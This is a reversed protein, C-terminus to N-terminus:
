CVALPQHVTGHLLAPPAALQAAAPADWHCDAGREATHEQGAGPQVLSQKRWRHSIYAAAQQHAAVTWGEIRSHQSAGGALRSVHIIIAKRGSSVDVEQASTIYLDRLDSKLEANTAELDFLAQLSCASAATLRCFCSCSGKCHQREAQKSLKNAAPGMACRHWQSRSCMPSQERKRRSRRAPPSCSPWCGVCCGLTQSSRCVCHPEEKAGTLLWCRGSAPFSVHM